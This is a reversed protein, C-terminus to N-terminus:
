PMGKKSSAALLWGLVNEVVSIASGSGVPHGQLSIKGPKYCTIIISTKMSNGPAGAGKWWYIVLPRM